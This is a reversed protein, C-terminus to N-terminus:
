CFTYKKIEDATDWIAYCNYLMNRTIPLNGYSRKTKNCWVGYHPFLIGGEPNSNFRCGDRQCDFAIGSRWLSMSVFNVALITYKM